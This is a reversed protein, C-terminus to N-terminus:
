YENVEHRPLSLRCRVSCGIKSELSFEEPPENDAGDVIRTLCASRAEAARHKFKHHGVALKVAEPM